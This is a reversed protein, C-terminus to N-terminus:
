GGVVPLQMAQLIEGSDDDQVLVVVKLGKLALPREASPFPQDKAFDALYDALKKKTAALDLKATYKGDDLKKVPVGDPLDFQSRVLHHHFRVGNGGVYRVNEEVLLFRVKVSAAPDKLGTVSVTATVADGDKMAAGDLTIPSKEELLPDILGRYQEFKKEANDMGGGGGANPTGNFLTTPTGRIKGPHKEGYFEWRAISTPNTLPDPGPIHMHYQLLVVDKSDYAKLLGDFGVDAAVCPPCQAGTFLEVVAVRNAKEDKRGKFKEPKYPPVKQNYEDDLKAEMEELIVLTKKAADAAGGKEQATALAKLARIRRAPPAAEDKAAIEAFPLANAEFGKQGLYAEALAALTQNSYRSGHKAAFGLVEKGWATADDPSAKIRAATKVLELAANASALTGPHDKVVAKLLDPGKEDAEKAAAEAEDLLKKKEDADKTQRARFKLQMAKGALKQYEQFGEPMKVPVNMNDQGLKELDTATLAARFIRADDGFSGLVTKPEKADLVGEFSLKNSGLNVPLTVKGNEVTLKGVTVDGARPPSSVLEATPKGDKEGIKVILFRQEFSPNPSYSLAYNGAPIAPKEDAAPAVGVAVAAVAVALFRVAFM